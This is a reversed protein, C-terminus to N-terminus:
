EVGMLLGIVLNSGTNSTYEYTVTPEQTYSGPNDISLSIVNGNSNVETVSLIASTGTGGPVVFTNGVFYNKGSDYITYNEVKFKPEREGPLLPYYSKLFNTAFSFDNNITQTVDFESTGLDDNVYVKFNVTIGNRVDQTFELLDKGSPVESTSKVVFIIRQQKLYDIGLDFNASGGKEMFIIQDKYQNTYNGYITVSTTTTQITLNSEPDGLFVCSVGTINTGSVTITDSFVQERTITTLSTKSLSAM